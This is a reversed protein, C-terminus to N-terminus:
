FEELLAQSNANSIVTFADLILSFLSFDITREMFYPYFYTVRTFVKNKLTAGM